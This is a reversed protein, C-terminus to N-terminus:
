QEALCWRVNTKFYRLETLQVHDIKGPANQIQSYKTLTINARKEWCFNCKTM